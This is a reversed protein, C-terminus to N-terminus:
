ATIGDQLGALLAGELLLKDIDIRCRAANRREDLVAVADYERVAVTRLDPVDQNLVVNSAVVDRLHWHVDATRLGL